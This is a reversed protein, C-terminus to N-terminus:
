VDEAIRIREALLASPDDPDADLERSLTEPSATDENKAPDEDDESM